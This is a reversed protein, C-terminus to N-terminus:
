KKREMGRREDRRDKADQPKMKEAQRIHHHAKALHGHYSMRDKDEMNLKRNAKEGGKVEDRRDKATQRM